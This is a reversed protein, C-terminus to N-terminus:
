PTPLVCACLTMNSGEVKDPNALVSILQPRGKSTCGAKSLQIDKVRVHEAGQCCNSAAWARHAIDRHFISQDM